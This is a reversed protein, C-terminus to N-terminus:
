WKVLFQLGNTDTCGIIKEIEKSSFQENNKEDISKVSNSEKQYRYILCKFM